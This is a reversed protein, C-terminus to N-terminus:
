SSESGPSASPPGSARTAAALGEYLAALEDGTPIAEPDLLSQLLLGDGVAIMFSAAVEVMRPPPEGHPPPEYGPSGAIIFESARRRLESYHVALRSLLEPSRQAQLLAELAVVFLPLREPFRALLPRAQAAMHELPGANPDTSTLRSSVQGISDIWELFSELIAENLLNERSGFHYNVASINTGAAAALDRVSTGAYGRESILQKAADLLAKKTDESVM